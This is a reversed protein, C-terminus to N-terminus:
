GLISGTFDQNGRLFEQATMEKKGEIQLGTIILSDKGCQVALGNNYTFTKGVKQANIEITHHQVKIIKLQKGKVWTWAGPWPNMARVFREIEEASKSWDILGDQKKLLGVYNAKSNDQAKPKIEGKIYKKLTQTLVKGGLKALENYLWETTSNEDLSIETQSLIPGTDLTKDMLMITIGSKKDNNLISAQIVSAGRHRPLLSAHVNVCGYKPISLINEPIIQAYAAVVIVDPQLARIQDIIQTIKQPQLVPINCEQAIIKVPPATLVQKRGVPMDPQTIVAEVKFDTNRILSQLSPVAFEPTGVFIVKIEKM